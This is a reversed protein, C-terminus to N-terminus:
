WRASGNFGNGFATSDNGNSFNVNAKDSKYENFSNANGDGEKISKEAMSLPTSVFEMLSIDHVKNDKGDVGNNGNNGGNNNTNTVTSNNNSNNNHNHPGPAITSADIYHNTESVDANVSKPGGCRLCVM